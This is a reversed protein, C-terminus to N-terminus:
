GVGSTFAPAPAQLPPMAPAVGTWTARLIAILLLVIAVGLAIMYGSLSKAHSASQAQSQELIRQLTERRDRSSQLRMADRQIDTLEQTLRAELEGMNVKGSAQAVLDQMQSALRSMTQNIETLKAVRAEMRTSDQERVASQLEAQFAQRATEYQSRLADM